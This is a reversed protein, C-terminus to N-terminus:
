LVGRETKNKQAELLEVQRTHSLRADDVDIAVSDLSIEIGYTDKTQAKVAEQQLLETDDKSQLLDIEEDTKELEKDMKGAGTSAGLVLEGNVDRTVDYGWHKELEAETTDKLRNAETTKLVLEQEAIELQKNKILINAGIEGVEAEIKERQMEYQMSQALVAQISGLLVQAYDPGKLRGQSYQDELYLNVKNMLVDFTGTGDGTGEAVVTSNTVEDLTIDIAM